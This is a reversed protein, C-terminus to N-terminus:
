AATPQWPRRRRRTRLWLWWALGLLLPSMNWGRWRHKKPPRPGRPGDPHLPAAVAEEACDIGDDGEDGGCGGSDEEYGTDDTGGDCDSGGDDYGTDYWDDNKSWDDDYGGGNDGSGWDDDWGSDDWGGDDYDDDDWDPDYVPDALCGTADFTTEVYVEDAPSDDVWVTSPAPGRQPTFSLAEGALLRRLEGTDSRRVEARFALHFAFGPGDHPVRWVEGTAVDARWALRAGPAMEHYRLRAGYSGFPLPTDSVLVDLDVDLAVVARTGNPAGPLEFRCLVGDAYDSSEASFVAQVEYRRTEAETAGAGPVLTVIVRGESVFQQEGLASSPGVVLLAALLLARRVLSRRQAHRLPEDAM